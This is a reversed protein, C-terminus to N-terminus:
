MMKTTYLALEAFLAIVLVWTLYFSVTPVFVALLIAAICVLCVAFIVRYDCDASFIEIERFKGGNKKVTALLVMLVALAIVVAIACVTILTTWSGGLGKGCVWNTFLAGALLTTSLFCERQYLFYVLGLVTVVPVVICLATIGVEHFHTSVFSVLSLFLGSFGAILGTKRIKADSKKVVAAGIGAAFVALGIWVVAKLIKHWVLYSDVSSGYYCRYILFLVCEASLGALFVNFINGLAAREQQKRQARKQSMSKKSM